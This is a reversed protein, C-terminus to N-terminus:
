AAPGDQLPGHRDAQCHHAARVPPPYEVELAVVYEQSAARGLGMKLEGVFEERSNMEQNFNVWGPAAQGVQSTVVASVHVASANTLDVQAVAVHDFRPM